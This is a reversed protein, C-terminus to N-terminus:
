QSALRYRGQGDRQVVYADGDAPTVRSAPQDGPWAVVLEAKRCREHTRTVRPALQYRREDLRYDITADSRNAISFRRQASRPLGFMQVAYWRKSAESQAVGVGIDTVVPELMNRRHEPSERWGEVFRRALAEGEFGQSSFQYGINESVLCYGYGHAEARESPQRGDAEHGYRDTRAMYRAFDQAAAALSADADVVGREHDQRFANTREVITRAIREAAPRDPAARDPRPEAAPASPAAIAAITLMLWALGCASANVRSRRVPARVEAAQTSAVWRIGFESIM